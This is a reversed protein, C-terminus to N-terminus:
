YGTADFLPFNRWFASTLHHHGDDLELEVLVYLLQVNKEVTQLRSEKSVLLNSAGLKGAMVRSLIV